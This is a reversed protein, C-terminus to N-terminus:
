SYKIEITKVQKNYWIQSDNLAKELAIGQIELKSKMDAAQSLINEIVSNKEKEKLSTSLNTIREIELQKTIEMLQSDTLNNELVANNPISINIESIATKKWDKDKIWYIINRNDEIINLDVDLVSNNQTAEQMRTVINIAEEDTIIKENEKTGFYIANEIILDKRKQELEPLLNKIESEIDKIKNWRYDVDKNHKEKEQQTKAKKASIRSQIAMRANVKLDKQLSLIEKYEKTELIKKSIIKQTQVPDIIPESINIIIDFDNIKKYIITKM